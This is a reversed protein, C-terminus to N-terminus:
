TALGATAARVRGAAADAVGLLDDCDGDVLAVADFLRDLSRELAAGDGGLTSLKPLLGDVAAGFSQAARAVGDPENKRAARAPSPSSDEVIPPPAGVPTPPIAQEAALAADVAAQAGRRDRRISRKELRECAAVLDWGLKRTFAHAMSWCLDEANHAAHSLDDARADGPFARRLLSANTKVYAIDDLFAKLTKYHQADVRARVVGLDLPETVVSLYEPQEEPDVPRWLHALARDNRLERLCARLFVRLERLCHRAKEDNKKVPVVVVPPASVEEVLEKEPPPASLAELAAGFAAKVDLLGAAWFARRAEDSIPKVVATEASVLWRPRPAEGDDVTALVVLRQDRRVEALLTTWALHLADPAQTCWGDVAPVVLVADGGPAASRRADQARAALCADLPLGTRASDRLLTAYGADAVGAGRDKLAQAAAALVVDRARPEDASVVVTATAAFAALARRPARRAAVAAGMVARAGTEESEKEVPRVRLLKLVDEVSAKYLPERHPALAALQCADGEADARRLAAPAARRAALEFDRASVIVASREGSTNSYLDPRARRVAGLAAEACLARLDAGCFGVTRAALARLLPLPPKSRVSWDKTHLALIARRQEEGPAEFALERDFRGPRRLAPDLADPRNTAGIVVVDGRDALGDMLALLTAVVSHQALEGSGGRGAARAPALGDLEDFFIISPAKARAEDFLSGLAKEAEGVYKSLCDAGNRVFFAVGGKKDESKESPQRNKQIHASCAQALQRAVLTKGTGPPGHFLVGRPPKIGLSKFLGPEKLPLLVMEELAKLHHDLGAVGEFAKVLPKPASRVEEDSSSSLDMEHKQQPLGAGSRRRSLQDAGRRAASSDSDFMPPPPPRRRRPPRRPPSPAYGGVRGRRDDRRDYGSDNSDEAGAFYRNGRPPARALGRNPSNGSVNIPRAQRRSRRPYREVSSSPSRARRSNRTSRRTARRPNRRRAVGDSSSEDEDDEDESSEVPEFEESQNRSDQRRRPADDDSPWKTAPQLLAARDVAMDDSDEPEPEEPTKGTPQLPAAAEEAAEEEAADEEPAADEEAAEEEPAAEEATEEEPEDEDARGRKRAPLPLEAEDEDEDEDARGRKPRRTPLPADEEDEDEDARGRKPRRSSAPFEDDDDEEEEEEEAGDEDFGDDSGDDGDSEVIRRRAGPAARAPRRHEEEAPADDEAGSRRPRDNAPMQFKLQKAANAHPTACNKKGARRATM